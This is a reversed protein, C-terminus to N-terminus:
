VIGRAVVAELEEVLVAALQGLAGLLARLLKEAIVQVRRREGAAHAHGQAALAGVGIREGLVSVQASLGEDEVASEARRASDRGREEAAQARLHDREVARSVPPADVVPAARQIGGGDAARHALRARVRPKTVVPVGVAEDGAVLAPVDHVAVLHQADERAFKVARPLQRAANGHARRVGIRPHLPRERPLPDGKQARVDAVFVDRLAHAPRARRHAPFLRPM